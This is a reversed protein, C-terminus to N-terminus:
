SGIRLTEDLEWLISGYEETFTLADHEDLKFAWATLMIIGKRTDFKNDIYYQELKNILRKFRRLLALQKKPVSIYLFEKKARHLIELPKKYVKQQEPKGQIILDIMWILMEPIIANEIREKDNM